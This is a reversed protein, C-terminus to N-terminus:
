YIVFFSKHISMTLLNLIPIDFKVGFDGSFLESRSLVVGGSISIPQSPLILIFSIYSSDIRRTLKTSNEYEELAWVLDERYSQPDAILGPAPLLYDSFINNSVPGLSLLARINGETLNLSLKKRGESMNELVVLDEGASLENQLITNINEFNTALELTSNNRLYIGSLDIGKRQELEFRIEDPDFVTTYDYRGTIDQYYRLLVDSVHVEIRAEGSLDPNLIIQSEASCCVFMGCFLVVCTKYLVTRM